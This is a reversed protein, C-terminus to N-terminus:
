DYLLWYDPKLQLTVILLLLLLQLPLPIDFTSFIYNQLCDSYVTMFYGVYNKFYFQSKGM